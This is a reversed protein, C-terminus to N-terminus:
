LAASRPYSGLIKLFSCKDDLEGIADKIGKDDIHGDMDIFFLYEWAKRKLPRSEIKTLNIKRGAFPELMNHLAGPADKIAFMVTTKDNGSKKYEKKGIVLFRTYNHPNDQIREEVIALDYLNAAAEAAVAAAAPDESAMQAALATTAVDTIQVNPLHEKLWRSCQAIAHPNSYITEIDGIKGSKNLLAPSVEMLIEASIKLNSSVFMDLTHSVVGEATSEIPVVGFDSRGKEVEHFVDSIEKKPHFEGSLGFHSMAAQHTFTAHPGLFAIKLPKELALSASIIERYLNKLAKNPFPGENSSTLREIIAREREPVYFDSNTEKKAKGVELACRARRNLLVLIEDDIADIEGRLEDLRKKTKEDMGIGTM